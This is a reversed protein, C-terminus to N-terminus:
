PQFTVVASSATAPPSAMSTQFPMSEGPPLKGPRPSIQWTAIVKNAGDRLHITLPPVARPISSVNAVEGAVVLSLKGEAPIIASNIGRLELGAGLTEAQLGVAAYLGDLEPWRAVISSRGLVVVTGFLIIALAFAAWAAPSVFDRSRAPKQVPPRKAFLFELDDGSSAASNETMFQPLPQPEPFAAPRVAEDRLPPFMGAEPEQHWVTMCRVCRVKRGKPGLAATTVDFRTACAPCTVIM